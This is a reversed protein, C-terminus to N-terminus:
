QFSASYVAHYVYREDTMRKIVELYSSHVVFLNAGDLLVAVAEEPSSVRVGSLPLEDPQHRGSSRGYRVGAATDAFSHLVPLNAAQYLERKM